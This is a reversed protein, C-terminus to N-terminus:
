CKTINRLQYAKLLGTHNLGNDFRWHPVGETMTCNNPEVWCDIVRVYNIFKGFMELQTGCDDCYDTNNRYFIHLISHNGICQATENGIVSCGSMVELDAIDKKGEYIQNQCIWTPVSTIGECDTEACNILEIKNIYEGFVLLQEECHPCGTNVYLKCNEGICKILEGDIVYPNENELYIYLGFAILLLFVGVIWTLVNRRREKKDEDTLFQKM